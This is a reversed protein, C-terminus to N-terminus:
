RSRPNSDLQDKRITITPLSPTVTTYGRPILFNAFWDKLHTLDRKVTSDKPPGDSRMSKVEQWGKTVRWNRYELFTDLRIEGITKLGKEKLLYTRIPGM